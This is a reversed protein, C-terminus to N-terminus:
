QLTTMTTNLETHSRNENKQSYVDKQTEKRKEYLNLEPHSKNENKQSYVDKQTEKRKKM